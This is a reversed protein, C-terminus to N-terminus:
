KPFYSGVLLVVCGFFKKKTFNFYIIILCKINFFYQKEMMIM